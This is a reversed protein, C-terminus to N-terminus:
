VGANYLMYLVAAGQTAGPINLYMRPQVVLGSELKDPLIIYTDQVTLDITGAPRYYNPDAQTGLSINPTAGDFAQTVSLVFALVDQGVNLTNGINLSGSSTFNFSVKVNATNAMLGGLLTDLDSSCDFAGLLFTSM